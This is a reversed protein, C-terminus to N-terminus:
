KGVAQNADREATLTGTHRLTQSVRTFVRRNPISRSSSPRQYAAAEDVAKVIVFDCM